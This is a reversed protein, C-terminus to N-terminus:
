PPVAARAQATDWAVQQEADEAIALIADPTEFGDFGSVEFGGGAQQRTM